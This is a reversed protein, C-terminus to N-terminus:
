TSPQQGENNVTTSETNTESRNNSNTDGSTNSSSSNTETSTQNHSNSVSSSSSTNHSNSYSTDASNYSDQIFSHQSSDKYSDTINTTTGTNKANAIESVIGSMLTNSSQALKVSTENNSKNILLNTIPNLGIALIDKVHQMATPQQPEVNVYRQNGDYVVFGGKIGCDGAAIQEATFKSCDLEFVKKQKNIVQGYAFREKAIEVDYKNTNSCASLLVLLFTILSLRKFKNGRM